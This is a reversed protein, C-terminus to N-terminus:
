QSHRRHSRTERLATSVCGRQLMPGPWQCSLQWHPGLESDSDAESQSPSLSSRRPTRVSSRTRCRLGTLGFPQSLLLLIALWDLLIALLIALWDVFRAFICHPIEELLHTKFATSDGQYRCYPPINLANGCTEWCQQLQECYLHTRIINGHM